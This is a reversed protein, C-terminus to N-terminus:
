SVSESGQEEAKCHHTKVHEEEEHRECCTGTWNMLTLYAVRTGNPDPKMHIQPDPDLAAFVSLLFFFFFTVFSTGSTKKALQICIRFRKFTRRPLM